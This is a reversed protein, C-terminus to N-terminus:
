HWSRSIQILPWETDNSIICYRFMVSLHVYLIATDTFIIITMILIM